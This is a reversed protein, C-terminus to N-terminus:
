SYLSRTNSWTHCASSPRFDKSFPPRRPATRGDFPPAPATQVPGYCPPAPATQARGGYVYAKNLLPEDADPDYAKVRDVLETQRMLRRRTPGKSSPPAAAIAPVPEAQGTGKTEPSVPASM